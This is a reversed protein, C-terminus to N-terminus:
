TTESTAEPAPSMDGEDDECVIHASVRLTIRCKALLELFEPAFRVSKMGPGDEDVYLGCDLEVQAGRAILAALESVKEILVGQADAIAEAVDTESSAILVNFGPRQHLLGRRALRVDGAAWVSEIKERSVISLADHSTVAGGGVRLVVDIM